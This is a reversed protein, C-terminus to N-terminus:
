SWITKLANNMNLIYQVDWYSLRISINYKRPMSISWQSIQYILWTMKGTHNTIKYSAWENFSLHMTYSATFYMELTFPQRNYGISIMWKTHVCFKRFFKLIELGRLKQFIKRICQISLGLGTIGLDQETNISSSSETFTASAREFLWSHYPNLCNLLM